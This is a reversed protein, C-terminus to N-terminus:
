RLRFATVGLHIEGKKQSGRSSVISHSLSLPISLRCGRRPMRIARMIAVLRVEDTLATVQPGTLGTMTSQRSLRKGLMRWVDLPLTQTAKWFDDAAESSSM